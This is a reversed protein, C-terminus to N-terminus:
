GGAEARCVGLWEPALLKWIEVDAACEDATDFVHFPAHNVPKHTVGDYLYLVFGLAILNRTLATM